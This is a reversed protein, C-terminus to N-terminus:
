KKGKKKSSKKTAKKKKNAKRVKYKKWQYRIFVAADSRMKSRLDVIPQLNGNIM